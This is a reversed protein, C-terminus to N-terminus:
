IINRLLIKGIKLEKSKKIEEYFNEFIDKRSYNLKQNNVQFINYLLRFINKQEKPVMSFDDYLNKVTIKEDDALYGFKIALKAMETKPFPTAIHVVPIDAIELSMKLSKIAQDLSEGPMGIMWQGWIPIGAKKLLKAAKYIQEDTVQKNLVKNRYGEDGSEFGLLIVKCNSKRLAEVVEENIDPVRASCTYGRYRFKKSFKEAFEFFWKKNLLFSDDKIRIPERNYRYLMFIGKLKEKFTKAYIIQNLLYTNNAKIMEVIDNIVLDVRRNRFYAGKIGLEKKLYPTM